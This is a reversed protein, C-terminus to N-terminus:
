VFYLIIMEVPCNPNNIETVLAKELPDPEASRGWTWNTISAPVACLEEGPGERAACQFM